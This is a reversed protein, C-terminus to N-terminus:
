DDAMLGNLNLSPFSRISKSICQRSWKSDILHRLKNWRERLQKLRMESISMAKRWSFHRKVDRQIMFFEMDICDYM